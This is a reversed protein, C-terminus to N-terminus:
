AQGGGTGGGGLGGVIISLIAVAALVIVAVVLLNFANYTTSFVNGIATTAASALGSTSLSTQLNAIVFVGIVLAVAAVIVALVAALTSIGSRKPSASIVVGGAILVREAFAHYAAVLIQAKIAAAARKPAEALREARSKIPALLFSLISGLLNRM